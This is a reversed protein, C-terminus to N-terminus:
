QIRIHNQHTCARTSDTTVQILTLYSPTSLNVGRLFAGRAVSVNTSLACCSNRAHQCGGQTTCERFTMGSIVGLVGFGQSHAADEMSSFTPRVQRQETDHMSHSMYVTVHIVHTARARKVQVHVVSIRPHSLHITVPSTSIVM